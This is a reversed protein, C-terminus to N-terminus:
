LSQKLINGDSWYSRKEGGGAEPLWQHAEQTQPNAKEPCKM